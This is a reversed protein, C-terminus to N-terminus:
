VVWAPTLKDGGAPIACHPDVQIPGAPTYAHTGAPTVSIASVGAQADAIMQRTAGAPIVLTDGAGVTVPGGDLNVTAQGAIVTWVQETDYAHVPGATGPTIDMRWVALGSGGQAPSALTTVLGSPVQTRRSGADRIITAAPGGALAPTQTVTM